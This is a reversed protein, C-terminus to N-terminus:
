GSIGLEAQLDQVVQERSRTQWRQRRGIPENEIEPLVKMAVFVPGPQDLIAKINNAFDELKEFAFTHPHERCFQCASQNRTGLKRIGPEISVDRSYWDRLGLVRESSPGSASSIGIKGGFLGVRLGRDLVM